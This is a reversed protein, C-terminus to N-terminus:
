EDDADCQFASIDVSGPVTLDFPGPGPTAQNDQGMGFEDEDGASAGDDGSDFSGRGYDRHGYYDDMIEGEQLHMMRLQAGVGNAQITRKRDRELTKVGNNVTRDDGGGITNNERWTRLGDGAQRVADHQHSELRAREQWSASARSHFGGDDVAVWEGDDEDDCAQAAEQRESWAEGETVTTLGSGSASALRKLTASTSPSSENANAPAFRVSQERGPPTAAAGGSGRLISQTLPPVFEADAGGTSSSEQKDSDDENPNAEADDDSEFHYAKEFLTGESKSPRRGTITARAYSPRRGPASVLSSSARPGATTSYSSNSTWTNQTADEGSSFYEANLDACKMDYQLIFGKM